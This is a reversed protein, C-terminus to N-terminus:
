PILLRQGPYILNPNKILKRNANFIRSWQFGSGYYRTSIGWLTDGRVVTYYRASPKPAPPRPVPPPKAVIVPAPAPAPPRPMTPPAFIPPPLVVPTAGMKALAVNVLAFETASLADGNLYKRIASDATNPDYNSAILFNIAARGWEDNNTPKSAVTDAATAPPAVNVWGMGSGGTGVGPVGSTDEVPVPAVVAPAQQRQYLMFALGGGVTVIWAGLPLPGVMKGLDIGAMM